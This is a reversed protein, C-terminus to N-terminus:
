MVRMQRPFRSNLLDPKLLTALDVGLARAIRIVMFFSTRVQGQEFGAIAGVSVECLQALKEQSINRVRRLTRVNRVVQAIVEADESNPKGMMRTM